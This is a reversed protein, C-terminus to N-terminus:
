SQDTWTEPPRNDALWAKCKAQIERTLEDLQDCINDLAMKNYDDLGREIRRLGMYLFTQKKQEENLWEVERFKQECKVCLAAVWAKMLYTRQAYVRGCKECNDM